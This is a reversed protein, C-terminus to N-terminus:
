QYFQTELCVSISSNCFAHLPYPSQGAGGGNDGGGGSGGGSKSGGSGRGGVGGSVGGSVLSKRNKERDAIAARVPLSTVYLQYWNDLWGLLSADNFGLYKYSTRKKRERKGISENLIPIYCTWVWEKETTQSVTWSNEWKRRSQFSPCILILLHFNRPHASRRAPETTLVCSESWTKRWWTRPKPRSLARM